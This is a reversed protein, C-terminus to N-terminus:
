APPCLASVGQRDLSVLAHLLSEDADVRWLSVLEKLIRNSVPPTALTTISTKGTYAALCHGALCLSADFVDEMPECGPDPGPTKRTHIEWLKELLAEVSDEPVLAALHCWAEQWRPDLLRLGGNDHLWARFVDIPGGRTVAAWRAWLFEAFSQHLIEM